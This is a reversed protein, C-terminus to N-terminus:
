SCLSTNEYLIQECISDFKNELTKDAGGMGCTICHTRMYFIECDWILQVIIRHRAHMLLILM